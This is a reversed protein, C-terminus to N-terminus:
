HHLLYSIVVAISPALIGVIPLSLALVKLFGKTENREDWLTRVMGRMESNAEPHANKDERHAVIEARLSGVESRVIGEFRDVIEWQRALFDDAM